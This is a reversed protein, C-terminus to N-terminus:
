APMVFQQQVPAFEDKHFKAYVANFMRTFAVTIKIDINFLVLQYYFFSVM